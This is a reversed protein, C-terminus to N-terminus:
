RLAPTNAAAPVSIDVLLSMKAFSGAPPSSPPTKPNATAHHGCATCSKAKKRAAAIDHQFVIEGSPDLQANEHAARTLEGQLIDDNVEKRLVRRRKDTLAKRRRQETRLGRLINKGQVETLRGLCMLRIVTMRFFEPLTGSVLGLLRCECKLQLCFACRGAEFENYLGFLSTPLAAALTKPPSM